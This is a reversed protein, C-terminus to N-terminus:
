VHHDRPMSRDPFLPIVFVPVPVVVVTKVVVVGHHALYSIGFLRFSRFKSVGLPHVPASCKLQKSSSSSSRELSQFQFQFQFFHPHSNEPKFEHINQQRARLDLPVYYTVVADRQM